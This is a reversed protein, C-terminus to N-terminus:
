KAPPVGNVAAKASAPRFSAAILHKPVGNESPTRRLFTSAEPDHRLYADLFELTYRAIWNYSEAGEELSYDAPVFHLGEKRFRESRQFMSSFQIHSIALMQLHYLDGHTWENLVNPVACTQDKNQSAAAWSELTEEARSFFLMPITMQDPHIDAAQQVLTPAYRFSGDLSVLADIRKDRAAAFLASMGGWSYGIVAVANSDTDPLGTAYDILFSIDRAEANAGPVDITMVRDTAGMSPGALVVFGYSAVYECLEINETATANLSPAYVVIPFRGAKLLADRIAWTQLSTTGHTFSEIYSQAKGQDVPKGFSTETRVLAAYDGITMPRSNSAEAPYWVLTQLPRPGEVTAQIGPEASTAKFVRSRDYQEIVKLGVTYPGPKQTFYFQFESSTQAATVTQALASCVVLTAPFSLPRM